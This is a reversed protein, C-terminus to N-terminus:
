VGGRRLVRVGPRGYAPAQGRPMFADFPSQPDPEPDLSGGVQLYFQWLKMSEAWRQQPTLRYWELWSDEHDLAENLRANRAEESMRSEIERRRIIPHILRAASSFTGLLVSAADVVH